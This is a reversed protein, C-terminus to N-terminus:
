GVLARQAAETGATLWGARQALGGAVAVAAASAASTEAAMRTGLLSDLSRVTSAEEVMITWFARAIRRARAVPEPLWADDAARLRGAAWGCAFAAATGALVPGRPARRGAAM